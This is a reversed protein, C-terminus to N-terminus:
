WGIRDEIRMSEVGNGFVYCNQFTLVTELPTVTTQGTANLVQDISGPALSYLLQQLALYEEQQM